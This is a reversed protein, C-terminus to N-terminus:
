MVALVPFRLAKQDIQLHVDIRRLAHLCDSRINDRVEITRAACARAPDCQAGDAHHFCPHPFGRARKYASCDNCLVSRPSMQGVSLLVREM